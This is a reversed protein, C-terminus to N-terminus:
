ALDDWNIPMDDVVARALTRGLVHDLDAPAIGACPRKIEIMDRTLRTGAALDRTAVLSKRVLPLNAAECPAPVKIGNGLAANAARVGNILAKM